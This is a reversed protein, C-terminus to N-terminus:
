KYEIASNKTYSGIFAFDPDYFTEHITLPYGKDNYTYTFTQTSIRNGWLPVSYEIKVPNSKLLSLYFPTIDYFSYWRNTEYFFVNNQQSFPNIKKDTIIKASLYFSYVSTDISADVAASINQSKVSLSNNNIENIRKQFAQQKLFYGNANSGADKAQSFGQTPIRDKALYITFASINGSGDYSYMVKMYPTDIALGYVLSKINGVYDKSYFEYRVPNSFVSFSLGTKDIQRLANYYFKWYGFDNPPLSNDVVSDPFSGNYFFDYHGANLFSEQNIDNYDYLLYKINEYSYNLKFEGKDPLGSVPNIGSWIYTYQSNFFPYYFDPDNSKISGTVQSLLLKSTKSTEPFPLEKKCSQTAIIVISVVLFTKKLHM